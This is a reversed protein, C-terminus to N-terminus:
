GNVTLMKKLDGDSLITQRKKNNSVADTSM